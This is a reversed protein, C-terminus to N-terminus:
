KEDDFGTDGHAGDCFPKIKSAGCRCLFLKEKEKLLNNEHETLRVMGEVMLPGDKNVTIKTINESM